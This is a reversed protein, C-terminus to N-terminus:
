MECASSGQKEFKKLNSLIRNLKLVFGKQSILNKYIYSQSFHYEICSQLKYPEQLRKNNMRRLGEGVQRLGKKNIFNLDVRQLSSSFNLNGESM